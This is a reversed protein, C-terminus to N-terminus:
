DGGEEPWVAKLGNLRCFEALAHRYAKAHVDHVVPIRVANQRSILSIHLSGRGNARPILTLASIEAAKLDFSSFDCRGQLGREEIHIEDSWRHKGVFLGIVYVIWVGNLVLVPWGVRWIRQLLFAIVLLLTVIIFGTLLSPGSDRWYFPLHVTM